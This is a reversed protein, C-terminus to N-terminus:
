FAQCFCISGASFKRLGDCL